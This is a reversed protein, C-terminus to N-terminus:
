PGLNWMEPPVSSPSETLVMLTSPGLELNVLNLRLVRILFFSTNRQKRDLCRRLDEIVPYSTPEDMVSNSDDEEKATKKTSTGREM